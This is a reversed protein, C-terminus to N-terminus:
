RAPKVGFAPLVQEAYAHLADWDFPARLGISLRAVGAERYQAVLDTAERPTGTLFGTRGAARAGWEALAQRARAAGREDAGMYFAVNATRVLSTPDRGNKECLEDLLRCKRAVEDPGPFGRATSMVASIPQNPRARARIRCM